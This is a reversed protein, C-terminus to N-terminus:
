VNNFGTCFLKTRLNTNSDFFGQGHSMLATGKSAFFLVFNSSSVVDLVRANKGNHPHTVNPERIETRGVSHAGVM